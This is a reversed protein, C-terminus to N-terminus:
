EQKFHWHDRIPRRSFVIRGNIRLVNVISVTSGNAVTATAVCQYRGTNEPRADKLTLNKRANVSVRPTAEGDSAKASASAIALQKGHEDFWNMTVSKYNAVHGSPRKAGVGTASSTSRLEEADVPLCPMSRSGGVPIYDTCRCLNTSHTMM